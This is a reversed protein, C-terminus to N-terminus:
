DEWLPQGYTVDVRKPESFERCRDWYFDGDGISLGIDIATVGDVVGSLSEDGEAFYVTEYEGIHLRFVNQMKM